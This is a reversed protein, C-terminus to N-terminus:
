EDLTRRTRKSRSSTPTDRLSDPHREARYFSTTRRPVPRRKQEELEDALHTADTVIAGFADILDPVSRYEVLPLVRDKHSVQLDHFMSYPREGEALLPVLPISFTPVILKLEHPVSAPNTIDAVVFRSMGALVAVTESFNQNAPPKFDFLFPLFRLRRLENRIANLVPWRDSTFRGLILVGRRGITEIVTRVKQNNLLLNYFQAVELSDILQTPQGDPSVVLNRRRKEDGGLVVDWASVGYVKAGVLNAGTLNTGVLIARRLDARSLKADTLNAGTLDAGEFNAGRLDAGTLDAGCLRAASFNARRAKVGAMLAKQFDALEFFTHEM